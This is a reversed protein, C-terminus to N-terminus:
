RCILYPFRSPTFSGGPFPESLFSKISLTGSITDANYEIDFLKFNPYSVEVVDPSSALIVSFTVNLPKNYLRLSSILFRDINSISLKAQPMNDDSDDPLIVDFPYATYTIGNSVIDKMDNVAYISTGDEDSTIHILLLFVEATEQSNIAQRFTLSTDRM